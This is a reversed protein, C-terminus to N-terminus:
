LWSLTLNTIHNTDSSTNVQHRLPQYFSVTYDGYSKAENFFYFYLDDYRSYTERYEGYKDSFEKFTIDISGSFTMSKIEEGECDIVITKIQNSVDRLVIKKRGGPLENIAVQGKFLGLIATVGFGNIRVKDSLVKIDDIGIRDM